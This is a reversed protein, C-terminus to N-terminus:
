AQSLGKITMSRMGVCNSPSMLNSNKGLVMCKPARVRARARVRVCVCVCVCQVRVKSHDKITVGRMVVCNSLRVGNGIVCGAGISVDPGAVNM